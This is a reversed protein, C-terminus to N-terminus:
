RRVDWGGVNWFAGSLSTSQGVIRDSFANIQRRQYLLAIPLKAYLLAEIKRYTRIRRDRDYVSRALALLADLSPDCFRSKNYGNPPIRACDFQDSTDPDDGNVFPYLAMQFKGGYVPGGMGAPAVFQTVAYARLTIRAGVARGAQAIVNGVVADGPTQAQIVLQLDLPRGDKTRIGDAGRKWGAAELLAEAHGVDGPIDPYASPDYAWIFLGRGADKADLAGRYAKEVMRPIDIAEALAHRVRPDSTVPDQTNFILAGVGDVRSATARVGPIAQLLRLDAMDEDDFFGEAEGTRLMNAATASEGVFAITLHAIKPAGRYYYPNAELEVRDGRRWSVVRYPGSGVPMSDFPVHNFDPLAALVHAPLIPFGQPALVLTLLPAFPATLHLVLTHADPADARAVRDYGYRSQVDNARNQIARISWACDSATLPAGDSFRLGSRLHYTITKGDASIGGNGLTPVVKAADGVLRGSDDYKVLYQFLLMGWETSSTGNELAPNLAMPERQQVITVADGARTSGARTCGALDCALALALLAAASRM